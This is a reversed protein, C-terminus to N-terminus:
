RKAVKVKTPRIVRGNMTYGKQLEELVTNEEKDSQESLLAEHLEPNFPKNEAEIREVGEKELMDWLQAYILEVGKIFEEKNEQNKLALEFSDLFPLLKTIVSECAFGKFAEKEKETRKKYNEFDAQVRQLTSRLEAEVDKPEEKAKEMAEKIEKTM